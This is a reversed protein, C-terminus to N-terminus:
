PVAGPAAREGTRRWRRIEEFASRVREPTFTCHGERVYQQAFLDSPLVFDGLWSLREAGERAGRQVGTDNDRGSVEAM